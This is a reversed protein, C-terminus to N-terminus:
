YRSRRTNRRRRSGVKKRTSRPKRSKRRRRGGQSPAAAPTTPQNLEASTVVFTEKTGFFSKQQIPKISIKIKGQNEPINEEKIIINPTNATNPITLYIDTTETTGEIKLKKLVITLVKKAINDDSDNQTANVKFLEFLKQKTVIDQKKPTDESSTSGWKSV